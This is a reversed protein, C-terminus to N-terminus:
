LGDFTRVQEGDLWGMDDKDDGAHATSPADAKSGRKQGASGAKGGQGGSGKGKGANRAKAKSGKASVM